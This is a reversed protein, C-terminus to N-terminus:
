NLIKNVTDNVIKKLQQKNLSFYTRNDVRQITVIEKDVLMYLHHSITSNSLKLAKSIEKGYCSKNSLLKIINLRTEDGLTKFVDVVSLISHKTETNKKYYKFGVMYIRYEDYGTELCASGYFYSMALIIKQEKKYKLNTVIGIYEDRYKKINKIIDIKADRTKNIVENQIAVYIKNFEVILELFEKKMDDPKMFFQLIDWKHETPLYMENNIFDICKKEDALLEEINIANDESNYGTSLFLSLLENSDINQIYEIFEDITQINNKIVRSILCIGFFTEWNFFKNLKKKINDNYDKSEKCKQLLRDIENHNDKFKENNLMRFMCSIFNLLPSEFFYVDNFLKEM